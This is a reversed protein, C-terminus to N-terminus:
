WAGSANVGTPFLRAEIGEADAAAWALREILQAAYHRDLLHTAAIRESLTIQDPANPQDAQVIIKPM